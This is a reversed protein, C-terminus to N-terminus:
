SLPQWNYGTQNKPKVAGYIQITLRDPDAFRPLFLFLAAFDPFPTASKNKDTNQWRINSDDIVPIV